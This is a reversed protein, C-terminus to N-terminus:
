VSPIKQLSFIAGDCIVGSLNTCSSVSNLRAKIEIMLHTKLWFWAIHQNCYAAKHHKLNQLAMYFVLNENAIKNSGITNNFPKHTVDSFLDASSSM